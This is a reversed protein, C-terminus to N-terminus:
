SVLSSVAIGYARNNGLCLVFLSGADLVRIVFLTQRIGRSIIHCITAKIYRPYAPTLPPILSLQWCTREFKRSTRNCACFCLAM